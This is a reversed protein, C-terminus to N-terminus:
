GTINGLGGLLIGLAALIMLEKGSQGVEVDFFAFLLIEVLVGEVGLLPLQYVDLPAVGPDPVLNVLANFRRGSQSDNAVVLLCDLLNAPSNEELVIPIGAPFDIHHAM